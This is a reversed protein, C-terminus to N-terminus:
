KLKTHTWKPLSGVLLDRACSEHPLASSKAQKRSCILKTMMGSGNDDTHIKRLSFLKMQLAERIWYYQVVIHNTKSHFTPNKSLHIANQIDCSLVYKEQKLSLEQLFKQIWWFEKSAKLLPLINPRQLLCSLVNKYNSQWSVAVRAFTM